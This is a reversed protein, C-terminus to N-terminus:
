EGPASALFTAARGDKRDIVASTRSLPDFATAELIVHSATVAVVNTAPGSAPYTDDADALLDRVEVASLEGSADVVPWAVVGTGPVALPDSEPPALETLRDGDVLYAEGSRGLVAVVRGDDAVVLPRGLDHFSGPAPGVVELPGGVWGAAVTRGDPSVAFGFAGLEPGDDPLTVEAIVAPPSGDIPVRWIARIAGDDRVALLERDRYVVFSEVSDLLLRPPDTFSVVYLQGAAGSTDRIFAVDRGVPVADRIAITETDLDLVYPRVDGGALDTTWVGLGGASDALWVLRGVGPDIAPPEPASSVGTTPASPSTVPALASGAPGTPAVTGCGVAMLAGLSLIGLWWWARHATAGTAAATRCGVTPRLEGM